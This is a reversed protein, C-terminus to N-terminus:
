PREAGLREALLALASDMTADLTDSTPVGHRDAYHRLYRTAPADPPTGLVVKGSAEWRGWEVNTTLGPLTGMERPVWFAIVDAAHLSADEWEVQTEWAGTFGGERAEPVFIVLRGADGGDLWRRRLAEVADPRWSAVDPSRPTPGALFIAADWSAPADEQAYAVVVERPGTMDSRREPVPARAGFTRPIAVVVNGLGTVVLLGLMSWYGYRYGVMRDILEVPPMAYPSSAVILDAIHQRTRETAAIIALAALLTSSAVAIARVRTRPIVSAVLGAAILACAAVAFPEVPLPRQPRGLVSMDTAPLLRNCGNSYQSLRIDGPGGILMDTGTYTIEPPDEGYPADPASCRATLFPLLFCLAAAALGVPSALRRVPAPVTRM